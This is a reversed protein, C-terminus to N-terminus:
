CVRWPHRLQKKWRCQKIKIMTVNLSMLIIQLTILSEFLKQSSRKNYNSHALLFDSTDYIITDGCVAVRKRSKNQFGLVPSREIIRALSTAIPPM